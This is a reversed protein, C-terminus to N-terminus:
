SVLKSSVLCSRQSTLPQQQQKKYYKRTGLYILLLTEIFFWDRPLMSLVLWRTFTIHISM